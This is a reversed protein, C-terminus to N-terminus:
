PKTTGSPPVGKYRSNLFKIMSATINIDQNRIMVNGATSNYGYIADAGTVDLFHQYANTITDYLQVMAEQQKLQIKQQVEQALRQYREQLKGLEEEKKAKERETLFQYNKQYDGMKAQLTKELNGVREIDSRLDEESKMSLDQTFDYGASVSDLDVFVIKTPKTVAVSSDSGTKASGKKNGSFYLFFLVAVAVTLVINFILSINKM